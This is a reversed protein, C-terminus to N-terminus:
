SRRPSRPDLFAPSPWRRRPDARDRPAGPPAASRRGSRRSPAPRPRVPGPHGRRGATGAAPVPRDRYGARALRRRGRGPRERPSRGQDHGHSRDDRRPHGPRHRRLGRDASPRARHCGPVAPVPGTADRGHRLHSCGSALTTTGAGGHAGWILTQPPRWDQVDPWIRDQSPTLCAATRRHAVPSRGSPAQATQRPQRHRPDTSPTSASSNWCAPRRSATPRASGSSGAPFSTGAPSSTPRPAAWAWRAAATMLDVTASARLQSITVPTM